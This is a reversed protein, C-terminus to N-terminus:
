IVCGLLTSPSKWATWRMIHHENIIEIKYIQIDGTKRVIKNLWKEMKWQKHRWGMFRKRKAEIVWEKTKIKNNIRHTKKQKNFFFNNRIWKSNKFKCKFLLQLPIYLPNKKETPALNCEHRTEKSIQRITDIWKARPRNNNTNVNTPPHCMSFVKEHLHFFCFFLIFLDVAVLHNQLIRTGKNSPLKDSDFRNRKKKKQLLKKTYSLSFHTLSFLVFHPWM